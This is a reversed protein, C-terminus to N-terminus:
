LKIARPIPSLTYRRSRNWQGSLVQAVQCTQARVNATRSAQDTWDPCYRRDGNGRQKQDMNGLNGHAKFSSTLRIPPRVCAGAGHSFNDLVTRRIGIGTCGGIIGTARGAANAHPCTYLRTLRTSEPTLFQLKVFEGKHWRTDNYDNVRPPPLLMFNCNLSSALSSAGDYRGPSVTRPVNTIHPHGRRFTDFTVTVMRPSLRHMMWSYHRISVIGPLSVALTEASALPEQGFWSFYM